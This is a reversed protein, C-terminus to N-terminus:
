RPLALRLTLQRPGENREVFDAILTPLKRGEPDCRRRLEQAIVMSVDRSWGQAANFCIILIPNSYQGDLLDIVITEFGTAQEDAQRWVRGFRHLDDLVVYVDQGEGRAVISPKWASQRM